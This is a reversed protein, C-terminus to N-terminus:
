VIGLERADMIDALSDGLDKGDDICVLPRLEPQEVLSLLKDEGFRQCCFTTDLM